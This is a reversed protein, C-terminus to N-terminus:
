GMSWGVTNEAWEPEDCSKWKGNEYTGEWKYWQKSYGIVACGTPYPPMKEIVLYNYVTEHMDCDNIKVSDKAQKDTPWWGWCRKDKTKGEHCCVATITFIYPIKM